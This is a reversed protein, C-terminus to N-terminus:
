NVDGGASRNSAQACPCGSMLIVGGGAFALVPCDGHGRGWDSGGMVGFVV